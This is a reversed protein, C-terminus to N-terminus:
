TAKTFPDMRGRRPNYRRIGEVKPMKGGYVRLNSMTSKYYIHPHFINKGQLDGQEKGVVDDMMLVKTNRDLGM